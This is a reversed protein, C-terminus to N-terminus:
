WLVKLLHKCEKVLAAFSEPDVWRPPIPVRRGAIQPPPAPLAVQLPFVERRTWGQARIELTRLPIWERPRDGWTIWEFPAPERLEDAVGPWLLLAPRATGDRLRIMAPLLAADAAMVEAAARPEVPREGLSGVARTIWFPHAGGIVDDVRLASLPAGALKSRTPVFNPVKNAPSVEGGGVGESSAEAAPAEVLARQRLRLPTWPLEEAACRWLRGLQDDSHPGALVLGGGPVTVICTAHRPLKCTQAAPLPEEKDKDKDKAGDKPEPPPPEISFRHLTAGPRLVYIWREDAAIALPTSGRLEVDPVRELMPRLARNTWGVAGDRAALVCHGGPARGIAVVAESPVALASTNRLKLRMYGSLHEPDIVWAFNSPGAGHGHPDPELWLSVARGDVSAMLGLVDREAVKRRHLVAEKEVDVLIEGQTGVGCLTRPGVLVVRDVFGGLKSGFKEAKTSWVSGRYLHQGGFWLGGEDDALAVSPEALPLEISKELELTEAHVVVVEYPLAVIVRKGDASGLLSLPRDDLAVVGDGAGAAVTRRGSSIVARRAM